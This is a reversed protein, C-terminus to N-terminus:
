FPIDKDELMETTTDLWAKITGGWAAPWTAPEGGLLASPTVRGTLHDRLNALSRNTEDLRATLKAAAAPGLVKATDTALAANAPPGPNIDIRVADEISDGMAVREHKLTIPKGIWNDSNRGHLEYVCNLNIKNLVLRKDIERFGLIGKQKKVGNDNFDGASVEAITVTMRGGPQAKIWAGNLNKGAYMEDFNLGM